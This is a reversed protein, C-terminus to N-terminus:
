LSGAFRSSCPTPYGAERCAGLERAVAYRQWTAEDMRMLKESLGPRSM